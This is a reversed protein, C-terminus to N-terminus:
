VCDDDDDGKVGFYERLKEYAFLEIELMYDVPDPNEREFEHALRYITYFLDRSDYEVEVGDENFHRIMACAVSTIDYVCEAIKANKDYDGM